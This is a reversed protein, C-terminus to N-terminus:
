FEFGMSLQLVRNSWQHGSPAAVVPGLGYLYRLNVQASHAVNIGIGGLVSLDTKKLNSQSPALYDELDITQETNSVPDTLHIHSSMLQGVELGGELYIGNLFPRGSQGLGLQLALPLSLYHLKIEQHDDRLDGGKASYLLEYQLRGRSSKSFHFHHFLGGHFGILAMSENTTGHLNPLNLGGKIGVSQQAQLLPSFCLLAWILLLFPKKMPTVFYLYVVENSQVPMLMRLSSADPIAIDTKLLSNHYFFYSM